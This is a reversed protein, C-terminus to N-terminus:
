GSIDIFLYEGVKIYGRERAVRELMEPDDKYELANEMKTNAEEMAQVELALQDRVKQTTQIDGVVNLLAVVLYTVTVIIVTRTLIGGQTIHM